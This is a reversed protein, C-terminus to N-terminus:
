KEKMARRYEARSLHVKNFVLNGRADCGVFDEKYGRVKVVVVTESGVSRYRTADNFWLDYDPCDTSELVHIGRNISCIDNGVWIVDCKVDCEDKGLVKNHRNSVIAGWGVKNRQYPSFLTKDTKIYIKYFYAFKKGKYPATEWFSKSLNIDAYLCM